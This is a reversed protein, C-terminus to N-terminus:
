TDFLAIKVCFFAQLKISLLPITYPKYSSGFAKEPLPEQFYGAFLQAGVGPEPPM